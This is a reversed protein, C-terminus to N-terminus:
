LHLISDSLCIGNKNNGVKLKISMTILTSMRKTLDREFCLELNVKESPIQLNIMQHRKLWEFLRSNSHFKLAKLKDKLKKWNPYM